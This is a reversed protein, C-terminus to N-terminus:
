PKEQAEQAEQAEEAREDARTYGAEFAEKPSFSEYGDEYRVFYGGAEPNHKRCWEFNKTVPIDGLEPDDLHLVVADDPTTTIDIIRAAQVVKHCQWRSLEVPPAPPPTPPRNAEKAARELEYTIEGEGGICMPGSHDRVGADLLRRVLNYGELRASLIENERRINKITTAAATLLKPNMTNTNRSPERPGSM